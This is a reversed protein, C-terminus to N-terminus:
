GQGGEETLRDDTAGQSTPCGYGGEKLNLKAVHLLQVPINQFIRHVYNGGEVSQM